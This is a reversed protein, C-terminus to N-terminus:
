QQALFDDILAIGDDAAKDPSTNGYAISEVM